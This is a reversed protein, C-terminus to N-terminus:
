LFLWSQSLFNQDTGPTQLITSSTSYSTPSGGDNRVSTCDRETTYTDWRSTTLSIKSTLNIEPITLIDDHHQLESQIRLIRNASKTINCEQGHETYVGSFNPSLSCVSPAGLGKESLKGNSNYQGPVLGDSNGTEELDNCSTENTQHFYITCQETWVPPSHIVM